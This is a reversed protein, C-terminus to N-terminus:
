EIRGYGTIRVTDAASSRVLVLSFPLGTRVLGSPQITVTTPTATATVGFDTDFLVATGVNQTGGWTTTIAASAINGTVTITANVRNQVAAMRARNYLGTFSAKAAKVHRTALVPDFRPTIILVLIGIIAVVVM